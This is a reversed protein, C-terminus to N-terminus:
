PTLRVCYIIVINGESTSMETRMSSIPVLLQKEPALNVNEKEQQNYQQVKKTFIPRAACKLLM